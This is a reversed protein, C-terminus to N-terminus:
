DPAGPSHGPKVEGSAQRCRWVLLAKPDEVKGSKLEESIQAAIVFVDVRPFRARQAELFKFSFAKGVQNEGRPGAPNTARALVDGILELGPTGSTADRPPTPPHSAQGAADAPTTQNSESSSPASSPAGGGRDQERDLEDEHRTM